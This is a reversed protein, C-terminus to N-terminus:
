KNELVKIAQKLDSIKDEIDQYAEQKYREGQIFHQLYERYEQLFGLFRKNAELQSSIKAKCILCMTVKCCRYTGKEKGCGEVLKNAINTETEIM